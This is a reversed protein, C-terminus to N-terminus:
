SSSRQTKSMLGRVTTLTGFSAWLRRAELGDILGETWITTLNEVEDLESQAHRHRLNSIWQKRWRKMFWM